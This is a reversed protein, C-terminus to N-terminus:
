GEWSLEAMTMPKFLVQVNNTGLSIDGTKVEGKVKSLQWSSKAEQIDLLGRLSFMAVGSNKIGERRDARGGAKETDGLLM